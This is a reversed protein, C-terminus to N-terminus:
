IRYLYEDVEWASVQQRYADWEDRKGDIFNRFIHNGLVERIFHDKELEDLAASLDLPLLEIGKEEKEEKSMKYINMEVAKPPEMQKKIGEMGAALCVALALYPNAAPDPNRLEVRTGMGRPAPIRILPSRNVASWAIHIPAEYGPVFRKYSNVLPNTLPTIAKIHAMIGAIFHYADKSLELEGDPDYFINRGDKLVSMNIHMGSGSVGVKPKPMFTAHLGHCKAIAKVVLKLTMITDAARLAEEYKFDIEHQGPAVEHHTAEIEYGMDELNLVIDRRANEGQDIPGVDFYSGRDHTVTTPEGDDDTHFLFFECEPGVNLTYGMERADDLVRKLVFRPNGEFPRGDPYYIDCILRAVSGQQPRWPFITFTDLDPYLFMDSEEIRSFGGISSGDFMIQNNLVREIQSVTVAVNKFTGSIDTFQLRIFEVDNEEILNLIDQKTYKPM